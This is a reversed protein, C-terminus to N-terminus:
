CGGPTRMVVAYPKGGVRISLPEEAIIRCTTHIKAALDWSVVEPDDTANTLPNEFM